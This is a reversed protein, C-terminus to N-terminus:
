LWGMDSAASAKGSVLDCKQWKGAAIIFRKYCPEIMQMQMMISTHPLHIHTAPTCADIEIYVNCVHLYVYMCVCVYMCVYMCVYTRVYMCVYM